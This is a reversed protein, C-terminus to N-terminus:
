KRNFLPLQDEIDHNLEIEQDNEMNEISVFNVGFWNLLTLKTNPFTFNIEKLSEIISRLNFSVFLGVFTRSTPNLKLM